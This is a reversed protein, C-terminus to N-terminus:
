DLGRTVRTEFFSEGLFNAYHIRSTTRDAPDFAIRKGLDANHVHLRLSYHGSKDTTGPASAFLWPHTLGRIKTQQWYV